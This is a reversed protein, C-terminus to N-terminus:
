DSRKKPTQDILWKGYQQKEGKELVINCCKNDHGVIGCIFCFEPIFEYEFNCWKVEDGEGVQLLVGRRLPDVVKLRVKVRLYEGVGTGNEGVDAEVFERIENGIAEGTDRNMKGLPLKFIRVWIPFSAFEYEDLSKEPIFEEVVLLDNGVKWPGDEVGKRRGSPQLFTLLFVNPRMSKCLTGKLPCWVRGLSAAIGEAYAPKESLVKGLALAEGEGATKVGPGGIRLGRREVDSLKLDKLLDEVKEMGGGGM